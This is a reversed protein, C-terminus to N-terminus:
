TRAFRFRKMVYIVAFTTSIIEQIFWFIGNKFLVVLIKKAGEGIWDM